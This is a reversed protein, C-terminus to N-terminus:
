VTCKDDVALLPTTALRGSTGIAEVTFVGAGPFRADFGRGPKTVIHKSTEFAGSANATGFFWIIAVDKNKIVSLLVIEENGFGSGWFTIDADTTTCLNSSVVTAGDLRTTIADQSSVSSQPGALATGSGIAMVLLIVTILVGKAYLFTKVKSLDGKKINAV